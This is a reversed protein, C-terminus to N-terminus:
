DIVTVGTPPPAGTVIRGPKNFRVGGAIGVAVAVPVGPMEPLKGSLQLPRYNSM